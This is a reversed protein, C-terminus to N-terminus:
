AKKRYAWCDIEVLASNWLEHVAMTMRAPPSDDSASSFVKTYEAQMAEYDSWKVLYVPRSLTQPPSGTRKLSELLNKLAQGTQAAVQSARDGDATVLGRPGTGLQGAVNLFRWGVPPSCPIEKSM